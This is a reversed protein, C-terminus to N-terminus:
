KSSSPSFSEEDSGRQDRRVYKNWSVRRRKNEPDKSKDESDETQRQSRNKKQRVAAKEPSDEVKHDFEGCCHCGSYSKSGPTQGGKSSKETSKEKDKEKFKGKTKASKSNLKKTRRKLTKCALILRFLMATFYM